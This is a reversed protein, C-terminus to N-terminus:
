VHARGIEKIDDDKCGLLNATKKVFEEVEEQACGRGRWLDFEGVWLIDMMGCIVGSAIAVFYDIQDAHSSLMDIQKDLEFLTKEIDTNAIQEENLVIVSIEKEFM